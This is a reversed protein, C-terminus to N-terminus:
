SSGRGEDRIWALTRRLGEDLDTEPTWGLVERAAEIRAIRQGADHARSPFAKGAVEIPRGVVAEVRALIERSSMPRGSGLNFSQGDGVKRELVSRAARAVDDVFVLDRRWNGETLRVRRGELASKILVPVLRDEPEGPGYVHFPRLVCGRLGRERVAQRFLLLAAGRTTGRLTKPRIPFDDPLAESGPGAVLPSDFHVFLAAAAAQLLHATALVDDAVIEPLPDDYGRGGHVATHVIAEPRTAALWRAVREGQTLDVEDLFPPTEWRRSRWIPVPSGPRVSGHVEYGAAILDRCIASGIFGGAGTVAVRRAKM